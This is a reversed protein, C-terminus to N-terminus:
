HRYSATACDTNIGIRGPATWHFWIHDHRNRVFDNGASADKFPNADLLEPTSSGYFGESGSTLVAPSAPFQTLSM